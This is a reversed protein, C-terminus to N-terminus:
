RPLIAFVAKPAHGARVAALGVLVYGPRFGLAEALAAARLSRPRAELAARLARRDLVPLTQTRASWSLACLVTGDDRTMLEIARRPAVVLVVSPARGDLDVYAVSPGHGALLAEGPRGTTALRRLLRRAARPRARGTWELGTGAVAEPRAPDAPEGDEAIAFRVVDLPRPRHAAPPGEAGTEEARAAPEHRVRVFAGTAVDAGVWEGELSALVLCTLTAGPTRARRVGARIRRPPRIRARRPADLSVM